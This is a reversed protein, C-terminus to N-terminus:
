NGERAKSITGDALLTEVALKFGPFDYEIPKDRGIHQYWSARGGETKLQFLQVYYVANNGYPKCGITAIGSPYLEWQGFTRRQSKM